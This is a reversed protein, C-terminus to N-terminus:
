TNGKNTRTLHTREKTETEASTLRSWSNEYTILRRTWYPAEAPTKLARPGKGTQGRIFDFDLDTRADLLAQTKKLSGM